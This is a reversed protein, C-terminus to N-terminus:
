LNTILSVEFRDRRCAPASKTSGNRHRFEMRMRHFSNRVVDRVLREPKTVAEPQGSAIVQIDSNLETVQNSDSRSKLALYSSRDEEINPGEKTLASQLLAARKLESSDDQIEHFESVKHDGLGKVPVNHLTTYLHDRNRIMWTTVNAFSNASLWLEEDLSDLEDSNDEETATDSNQLTARFQFRDSDDTPQETDSNGDRDLSDSAESLKDQLLAQRVYAPEDLYGSKRESVVKSNFVPVSEDNLDVSDGERGGRGGRKMSPNRSQSLSRRCLHGYKSNPKYNNNAAPGKHKKLFGSDPVLDKRQSRSTNETYRIVINNDSRGNNGPIKDKVCTKQSQRVEGSSWIASSHDTDTLLEEWLSDEFASRSSSLSVQQPDVSRDKDNVTWKAM